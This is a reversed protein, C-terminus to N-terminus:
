SLRPAYVVRWEEDSVSRRFLRDLITRPTEDEALAALSVAAVLLHDLVEPDARAAELVLEFAGITREADAAPADNRILAYLREAEFEHWNM